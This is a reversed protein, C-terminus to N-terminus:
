VKMMFPNNYLNNSLEPLKIFDNPFITNIDFNSIINLYNLIKLTFSLCNYTDNNKYIFNFYSFKLKKMDLSKLFNFISNNNLYKKPRFMRYYKVYKKNDKLYDELPFIEIYKTENFSLINKPYGFNNEVYNLIYNKNKFKIIMFTHLYDIQIFYLFYLNEFDWNIVEQLIDGTKFDIDSYKISIKEYFESKKEIKNYIYIM